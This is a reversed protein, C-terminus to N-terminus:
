ACNRQLRVRCSTMFTDLNWAMPRLDVDKNKDRGQTQSQTPATLHILDECRLLSRHPHSLFISLQPISPCLLLRFHLVFSFFLSFPLPSSLSFLPSFPVSSIRFSLLPNIFAFITNLIAIVLSEAISFHSLVFIIDFLLIPFVM